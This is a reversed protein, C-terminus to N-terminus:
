KIMVRTMHLMLKMRKYFSRNFYTMIFIIETKLIGNGIFWSFKRKIKLESFIKGKVFQILKVSRERGRVIRSTAYEEGHKCCPLNHPSVINRIRIYTYKGLGPCARTVFTCDTGNEMPTCPIGSPVLSLFFM